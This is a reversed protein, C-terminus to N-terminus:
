LKFNLVHSSFSIEVKPTASSRDIFQPIMEKMIQIQYTVSSPNIDNELAVKKAYNTLSIFDQTKEIDSVIKQTTLSDNLSSKGFSNKYKFVNQLLRISGDINILSSAMVYDIIQYYTNFPATKRKALNIPNIIEFYDRKGSIKNNFIIYVKQNYDPPPAFFSWRQFFNTQFVERSRQATLNLPNKPMMFFFTALWYLLFFTFLGIYIFRNM